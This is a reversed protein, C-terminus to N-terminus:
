GGAEDVDVGDTEVGVLGWAAQDGVEVVEQHLFYYRSCLADSDHQSQRVVLYVRGVTLFHKSKQLSQYLHAGVVPHVQLCQSLADLWYNRLDRYRVIVDLKVLNPVVKILLAQM